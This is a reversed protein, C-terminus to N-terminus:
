TYMYTETYVFVSLYSCAYLDETVAASPAVVCAAVAVSHCLNMCLYIREPAYAGAVNNFIGMSGLTRRWVLVAVSNFM